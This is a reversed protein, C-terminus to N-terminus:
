HLALRAFYYGVPLEMMGARELTLWEWPSPMRLYVPQPMVHAEVSPPLAIPQYVGIAMDNSAIVFAGEAVGPWEPLDRRNANHLDRALDPNCGPAQALQTASWYKM